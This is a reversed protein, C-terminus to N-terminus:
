GIYKEIDKCEKLLVQPYYNEDKELAPDLSIVALYTHNLAWKLFTKIMLIQLKM